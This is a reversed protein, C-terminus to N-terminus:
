SFVFQRRRNKQGNTNLQLLIPHQFLGSPFETKLDGMSGSAGRVLASKATPHLHHDRRYTNQIQELEDRRSSILVWVFNYKLIGSPPKQHYFRHLFQQFISALKQWDVLLLM